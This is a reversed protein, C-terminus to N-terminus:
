EKRNAPRNYLHACDNQFMPRHIISFVLFSETMVSWHKLIKSLITAIDNLFFPTCEVCETSTFKVPKFENLITTELFSFRPAFQVWNLFTYCLDLNFWMHLILHFGKENCFIVTIKIWSIYILLISLMGILVFGIGAFLFLRAKQKPTIVMNDTITLVLDTKSM